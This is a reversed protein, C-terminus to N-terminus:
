RLLLLRKTQTFDGAQLRYFYVGSSLRSAEFNVEHVGTDRREDVLVSVERGLMDYVSLRVVTSKPLEYKITTSPNFPNPYNQHLAFEHPLGGLSNGVSTIMESLPRRWVGLETGAFLNQGISALCGISAYQISPDWWPERPLGENVATWSAGSDTSLFVGMPPSAKLYYGTGAFLNTGCVALAPVYSYKMAPSTATWSTGNNTSLFVGQFTGAFLNTGSVALAGVGPFGSNVRLGANMKTWNSGRNTSLYVGSSDRSYFWTGAFLNQGNSAICSIPVIHTSDWRLDRPLGNNAATWNTGNNTSRFVGDSTGAFLNTDFVALARVDTNTLGTSAAAWSTGNNTSVFVGGSTGAFLNVGSVALCSVNTMDTSAATWSTGSDTSLFVGRGTGAFLNAGNVAFCYAPLSDPLSTHTWQASAYPCILVIALALCISQTRM